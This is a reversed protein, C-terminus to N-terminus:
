GAADDKLMVEGVHGGEGGLMADGLPKPEWGGGRFCVEGDCVPITGCMQVRSGKKVVSRQVLGLCFWM